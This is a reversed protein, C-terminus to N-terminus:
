DVPVYPPVFAGGNIFVQPNPEDSLVEVSNDFGVFTGGNITLTAGANNKIGGGETARCGMVNVNNLTVTGYNCIGGGNNAVCNNFDVNSIEVDCNKTKIVGGDISGSFNKLKGM